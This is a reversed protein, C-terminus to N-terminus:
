RVMFNGVNKGHMDLRRVILAGYTIGIIMTQLGQSILGETMLLTLRRIVVRTLM